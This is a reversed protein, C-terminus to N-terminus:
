RRRSRRKPWGLELFERARDLVLDPREDAIFHGCGPVLELRMDDSYPEFGEVALPNVAFDEAGFLLLTPTKLRMGRYQGFAIRMIGGFFSWRYLRSHALARAPDRMQDTFTELVGGEWCSPNPSSLRMRRNLFGLLRPMAWPSLVPVSMVAQYWLRGSNRRVLEPTLRLFPHIINLALYREVREPHHLCLLFSALGGWDHGVISTREIGLEDLLALLDTAFLEPNYRRDPAESWGFGRLDPCIVRHTEAMPGILDRWEWWHQPWGHVMLLTPAGPDGAEAVHLRVGNAVVDRHTVGEVHPMDPYAGMLPPITHKRPARRALRM